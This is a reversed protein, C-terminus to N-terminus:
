QSKWPDLSITPSCLHSAAVRWRGLGTNPPTYSRKADPHYSNEHSRLFGAVDTGVSAPAAVPPPAHPAACRDSANLGAAVSRFSEAALAPSAHLSTSPPFISSSHNPSALTTGGKYALASERIASCTHDKRATLCRSPTRFAKGWQHGSRTEVRSRWRRSHAITLKM